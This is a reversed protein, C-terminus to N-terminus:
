IENSFPRFKNFSPNFPIDSFFITYRERSAKAFDLTRAMCDKQDIFCRSVTSKGSPTDSSFFITSSAVMTSYFCGVILIWRLLRKLEQTQTM